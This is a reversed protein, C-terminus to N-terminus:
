ITEGLKIAQFIKMRRLLIVLVVLTVLFLAGFLSYIQFIAPWAVEVQFPPVRSAADLGIQLYPIYVFSSLLGLGTGAAVGVLILFILEWSLYSAMQQ